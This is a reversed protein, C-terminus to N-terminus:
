AVAVAVMAVILATAGIFSPRDLLQTCSAFLVNSAGVVRPAPQPFNAEISAPKLRFDGGLLLFFFLMKLLTMASVCWLLIEQAHESVGM